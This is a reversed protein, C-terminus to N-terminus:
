TRAAVRKKRTTQVPFADRCHAACYPKGLLSESGCYHFDPAGPMGIPWRCDRPLLDAFQKPGAAHNSEPLPPALPTEAAAPSILAPLQAPRARARRRPRSGPKRPRGGVPVAQFDLGLRHAKGIIANRTCGLEAGIASAPTGQKLLERMRAIREDNWSFENPQM